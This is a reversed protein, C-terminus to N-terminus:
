QEIFRAEGESVERVGRFDRFKGPSGNTLTVCSGEGTQRAYVPSEDQKRCISRKRASKGFGFWWAWGGNEAVGHARAESAEGAFGDEM